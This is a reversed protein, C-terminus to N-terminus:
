CFPTYPWHVMAQSSLQGLTFADPIAQFFGAVEAPMPKPPFLTQLM